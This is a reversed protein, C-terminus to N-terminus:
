QSSRISSMADSALKRCSLRMLMFIMCSSNWPTCAPHAAPGLLAARSLVGRRRVTVGRTSSEIVTGQRDRRPVLAQEFLRQRDPCRIAMPAASYFYPQSGTCVDGRRETGTQGAAPRISRIYQLM